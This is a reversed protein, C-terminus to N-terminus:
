KAKYFRTQKKKKLISHTDDSAILTGEDSATQACVSFPFDIRFWKRHNFIQKLFFWGNTRFSQGSKSIIKTKFENIKNMKRGGVVLNPRNQTRNGGEVFVYFYICSQKKKTWFEFNIKFCVNQTHFKHLKNTKESIKWCFFFPVCVGNNNKRMWDISIRTNKCDFM